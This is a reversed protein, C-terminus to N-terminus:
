RVWVFLDFLNPMEFESPNFSVSKSDRSTRVEKLNSKKEEQKVVKYQGDNLSELRKIITEANTIPEIVLNCVQYTRDEEYQISISKVGELAGLEKKITAPCSYNCAFGEVNLVLETNAASSCGSMLVTLTISLFLILLGKM